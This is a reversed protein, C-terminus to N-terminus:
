FNIEIGKKIIKGMLIELQKEELYFLDKQLDNFLRQETVIRKEGERVSATILSNLKSCIHGQPFVNFISRNTRAKRLSRVLHLDKHMMTKRIKEGLSDKTPVSLSLEQKGITPSHWVIIGGGSEIVKNIIEVTDSDPVCLVYEKILKKSPPINLYKERIYVENAEIEEIRKRFQSVVKAPNSVSGKAEGFIVFCIDKEEKYLLFDVNRVDDLEFLPSARIFKYGTNILSGGRLFPAICSNIMERHRKDDDIANNKKREYEDFNDKYKRRIENKTKRVEALYSRAQIKPLSKIFEEDDVRGCGLM